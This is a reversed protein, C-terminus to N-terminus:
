NYPKSSECSKAKTVHQRIEEEQLAAILKKLADNEAKRDKLMDKIEQEVSKRKEKMESANYFM